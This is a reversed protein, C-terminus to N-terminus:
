NPNGIGKFLATTVASGEITALFKSGSSMNKINADSPRQSCKLSSAATSITKLFGLTTLVQMIGDSKLQQMASIKM